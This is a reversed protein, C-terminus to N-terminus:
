LAHAAALHINSPPHRVDLASTARRGCACTTQMVPSFSLKPYRVQLYRYYCVKQGPKSIGHGRDATSVGAPWGPTECHEWTTQTM